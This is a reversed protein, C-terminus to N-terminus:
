EGFYTVKGATFVVRRGQYSWMESGDPTRVVSKPAGLSERVAEQSWGLEVDGAVIKAVWNSPFRSKLSSIRAERQAAIRAAEADAARKAALEAEEIALRQREAEAAAAARRQRDAEIAQAEARRIADQCQTIYPQVRKDNPGIGRQVLDNPEIRFSDRLCGVVPGEYRKWGDYAKKRQEAEAAKIALDILGGIIDGADARVPTQSGSWSFFLAAAIVICRRIRVTKQSQNM